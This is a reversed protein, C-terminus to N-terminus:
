LNDYYDDGKDQHEYDPCLTDNPNDTWEDDTVEGEKLCSFDWELPEHWGDGV